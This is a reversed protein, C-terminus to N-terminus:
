HNIWLSFHLKLVEPNGSLLSSKQQRHHNVFSTLPKSVHFHTWIQKGLKSCHLNRFNKNRVKCAKTWDIQSTYYSTIVQQMPDLSPNSIFKYRKLSQCWWFIESSVIQYNYSVLFHLTKAPGFCQREVTQM